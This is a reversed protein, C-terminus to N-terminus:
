GNNAATTRSHQYFVGSIVLIAILIVVAAVLHTGRRSAAPRAATVVNKPARKAKGQQPGPDHV